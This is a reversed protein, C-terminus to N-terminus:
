CYDAGEAEVEAHLKAGSEFLAHVRPDRSSREFDREDIVILAEELVNSMEDEDRADVPGAYRASVQGVAQSRQRVAAVIVVHRLGLQVFQHVTQGVVHEVSRRYQKAAESLAPDVGVLCPKPRQVPKIALKFGVALRLVTRADRIV